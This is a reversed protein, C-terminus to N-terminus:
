QFRDLAEAIWAVDEYQKKSICGLLTNDQLRGKPRELTREKIIEETFNQICIKMEANTSCTQVKEAKNIKDYLSCLSLSSTCIKVDINHLKKRGDQQNSRAKKFDM